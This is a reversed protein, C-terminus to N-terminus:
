RRRRGYSPVTDYWELGGSNYSDEKTRIWGKRARKDAIPNQTQREEVSAQSKAEQFLLHTLNQDFPIVFSDSMVFSLDKRGYGLTYSEELSSQVEENYSDFVLYKDDWSTYYTPHKDTRYLLKVNSGDLTLSLTAYKTPDDQPTQMVFDVFSEVDIYTLDRMIVRSTESPEENNYRLWEIHSVNDPRSMVVPGLTPEATLTFLSKTEPANNLSVKITEYCDKVITAIKLSEVTDSISSVEDGDISSLVDQVIELLTKRSM